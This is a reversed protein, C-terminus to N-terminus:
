ECIIVREETVIADVRVDHSLTPVQDLIQFEYALAMIFPKKVVKQLTRDYFGGGYGIRGGKPDYAVGPILLLEAEYMCDRREESYPPAWIGFPGLELEDMGQVAFFVLDKSEKRISPFLVRKGKKLADAFLTSTLVENNFGSYLAIAKSEEYVPFEM